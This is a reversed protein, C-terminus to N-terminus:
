SALKYPSSITGNGEILTDAKLNIVPRAGPDSYGVYYYYSVFGDYIVNWVYADDDDFIRPASTWYMEGSYLYYTYNSSTTGGAFFAEDATLLGVPNTLSVNGNTADNVTYRDSQNTCKLSPTKNSALRDYAGYYVYNGSTSSVSRDNCFISDAIYSGYNTELNTDYWADIVGKITSDVQVGTGDDYTYGVYKADNYTTNYASKGIVATHTDSNATATTGDYM